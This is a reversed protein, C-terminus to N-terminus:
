QLCKGVLACDIVLPDFTPLFQTQFPNASFRWDEIQGTGRGPGMKCDEPNQPPQTSGFPLPPIISPRPIMM